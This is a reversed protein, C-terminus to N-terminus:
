EENKMKEKKREVQYSAIKSNRSQKAVTSLM